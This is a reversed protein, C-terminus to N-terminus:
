IIYWVSMVCVGNVVVQVLETEEGNCYRCGYVCIVFYRQLLVCIDKILQRVIFVQVCAVRNGVKQIEVSFQVEKCEWWWFIFIERGGGDQGVNIMM